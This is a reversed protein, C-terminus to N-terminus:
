SNSKIKANRRRGGTGISIEYKEINMNIQHKGAIWVPNYRTRNAISNIDYYLRAGADIFENYDPFKSTDTIFPVIFKIYQSAPEENPFFKIEFPKYGTLEETLDIIAQTTAANLTKFRSVKLFWRFEEDVKGDRIVGNKNGIYDLYEGKAKDINGMGIDEDLLSELYEFIPYLCKYFKLTNEKQFHQPLTDLVGKLNNSIM